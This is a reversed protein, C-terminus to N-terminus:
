FSAVIQQLPRQGLKLSLGIILAAVCWLPVAAHQSCPMPRAWDSSSLTEPVAHPHKWKFVRTCCLSDCITASSHMQLIQFINLYPSSRIVSREICMSYTYAKKSGWEEGHVPCVNWINCNVPLCGFNSSQVLGAPPGTDIAPTSNDQKCTWITVFMDKFGSYCM